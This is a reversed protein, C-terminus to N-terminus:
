SSRYVIRQIQEDSFPKKPHLRNFFTSNDKIGIYLLVMVENIIISAIYIINWPILQLDFSLFLELIKLYCLKLHYHSASPFLFSEKKVQSCYM